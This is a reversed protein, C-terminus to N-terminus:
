AGRSKNHCEGSAIRIAVGPIESRAIGIDNLLRDDLRSLAAMTRGARHMRRLGHIARSMRQFSDNFM